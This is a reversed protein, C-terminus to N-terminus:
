SSTGGSRAARAPRRASRRPTRSGDAPWPPGLLGALAMVRRKGKRSSQRARQHANELLAKRGGSLAPEPRQRHLPSLPGGLRLAARQGLAVEAQQGHEMVDIVQRCRHKREQEPSPLAGRRVHAELSEMVGTQDVPKTRADGPRLSRVLPDVPERAEAPLEQHDVTTGDVVLVVLRDLQSADDRGLVVELDVREDDREREGRGVVVRLALRENVRHGEFPVAGPAAGVVRALFFSRFLRILAGLPRPALEVVVAAADGPDELGVRGEDARLFRKLVLPLDRHHDLEVAGPPWALM